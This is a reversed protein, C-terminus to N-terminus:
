LNEKKKFTSLKGHYDCQTCGCPSDDDWEHGGVAESGDDTVDFTVTGIIKFRDEQGCKPCSVGELCNENKSKNMM